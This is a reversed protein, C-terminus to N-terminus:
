KKNNKQTSWFRYAYFVLLIVSLGAMPWDGKAVFRLALIIWCCLLIGTLWVPPATM